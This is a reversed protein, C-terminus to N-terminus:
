EDSGFDLPFDNLMRAWADDSLEGAPGIAIAYQLQQTAAQTQGRALRLNAARVRKSMVGLRQRSDLATEAASVFRAHQLVRICHVAFHTLNTAKGVFDSSGKLMMSECRQPDDFATLIVIPQQPNISLIRSQVDAGSLGPLMLDLVVLDHRRSLWMDLAAAGNSAVEVAFYKELARVAAEAAPAGDEVLLLSPKPREQILHVVRAVFQDAAGELSILHTDGDILPEFLAREHAECTVIIPVDPFGFRGSRIMRAFRWVDIDLLNPASLVADFRARAYSTVGDRGSAHTAVRAGAHRFADRLRRMVAGDGHVLLLDLAM